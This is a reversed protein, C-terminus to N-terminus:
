AAATHAEGRRVGRMLFLAILMLVPIYLFLARYDRHALDLV